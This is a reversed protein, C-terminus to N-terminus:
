VVSKRDAFAPTGSGPAQATVSSHDASVVNTGLSAQLQNAWIGANVQLSRTIIDTYDTLSADLGAGAVRIAGGQVRYGELAGNNLIPTGTTLTVRSANLFGAGDIQIGAPNAIVVQARAGAVEVYGNLHSPNSGNVENLIVRATGTALWPNGQVWGGIQTQVDTRSNNLIVGQRGVDLQQYQNRSVGAASPTTINVQPTGNASTVVTPRQQAPAGPDAIIRGADPVQQASLPQVLGVWGLVLWLAFSMPRLTAMTNGGRADCGGHPASVLESAVQMVGLTRNFVLRYVRNM